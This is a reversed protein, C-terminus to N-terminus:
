KQMFWNNLKNILANLSFTRKGYRWNECDKCRWVSPNNSSQIWVGCERCNPM